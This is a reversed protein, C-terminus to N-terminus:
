KNVVDAVRSRRILLDYNVCIFKMVMATPDAERTSFSDVAALNVPAPLSDSGDPSSFSALQVKYAASTDCFEYYEM